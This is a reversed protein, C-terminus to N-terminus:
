RYLSPWLPLQLDIGYVFAGIAIAVLVLTNIVIGRWRAEHSALSALVLLAVLSLVFGFRPLMFAFLTVSGAIWVLLRINWPELRQRASGRRVAGLMIFLGAGGLCVSVLSPFFGPGMQAPTGLDYERSGLFFALATIVFLLGSTFARQNYILMAIESLM